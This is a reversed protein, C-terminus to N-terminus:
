KKELKNIRDQSLKAFKGNPYKEMVRKYAKIANDIDKLKNEYIDGIGFLANPAKDGNPYNIAVKGLEEIAKTYNELAEYVLGIGLQANDVWESNPYKEIVELFSAQANTYQGARFYGVAEDFKERSTEAWVKQGILIVVALILITAFRKM